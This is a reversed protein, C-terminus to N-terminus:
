LMARVPAALCGKAMKVGDRKQRARHRQREVEIERDRNRTGREMQRDTQRDLDTQRDQTDQTDTQRPDM